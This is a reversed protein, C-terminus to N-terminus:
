PLPHLLGPDHVNRAHSMLLEAVGRPHDFPFFHGGPFRHVAIPRRTLSQWQGAEAPSTTDDDGILVTIPARLPPGPTFRYTEIAAFDARLVPEFLDLLEREALVAGPLGGLRQLAAFFRQRPLGHLPTVPKDLCPPWRGSVIVRAPAPLAATEIRRALLWALWAGMSHGFLLYPPRLAPRLAQFLDAAMADLDTLLPEGIRRGRGPPELSWWQIGATLREQLSRYVHRNGGAFPVSFLRIM